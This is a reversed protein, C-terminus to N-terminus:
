KGAELSRFLGECKDFFIKKKTEDYPNLTFDKFFETDYKYKSDNIDKEGITQGATLKGKNFELIVYEKQANEKDSKVFFYLVNKNIDKEEVKNFNCGKSSGFMTRNKENYSNEDKYKRIELIWNETDDHVISTNYDVELMGYSIM